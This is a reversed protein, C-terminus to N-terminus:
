EDKFEEIGMSYALRMQINPKGQEKAVQLFRILDNIKM